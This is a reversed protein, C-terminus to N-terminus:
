GSSGSRHPRSRRAAASGRSGPPIRPAALSQCRRLPGPAPSGSSCPSGRATGYTFCDTRLRSCQIGQQRDRLQFGIEEGGLADGLRDVVDAEGDPVPLRDSQDALATAAFAHGREGDHAQDVIGGPLDDPSLNTELPLVQQLDRARLHALDPAAVDGHNELFGHGREIRHKRDAALDALGDPEVLAHLPAVDPAPADLQQLEHSDGRGLSPHRVVGVVQAAPHALADHDGHRQGAIRLDEDGVLGRGSQVHGDLSLDHVEHGSQLIPQLRGDKQDGVVEAQDRLGGPPDDDHVQAFHHFGRRRWGQKVLRQVGVSLPQHARDGLDVLLM